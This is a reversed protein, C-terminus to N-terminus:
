STSTAGGELQQKLLELAHVNGKRMSGSMLPAMLKFLGGPKPAMVLTVRTGSGEDTLEWSGAPEMSGPGAKAPPGHWALKSPAEFETWEFTGEAQGRAMKYSYETGAAPEGPSAQKVWAFQTVYEPLREAHAIHDFVESRPRAITTQSEIQM